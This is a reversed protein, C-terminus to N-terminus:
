QDEKDNFDDEMLHIYSKYAQRIVFAELIFIAIGIFLGVSLEHITIMCMILTINLVIILAILVGLQIKTNRKTKQKKILGIIACSGLSILAGIIIADIM